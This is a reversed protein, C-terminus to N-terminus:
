WILEEIYDEEPLLELPIRYYIWTGPFYCSLPVVREQTATAVLLAENSAIWMYSNKECCINKLNNLGKGANHSTSKISFNDEMAKKIAAQDNLEPLVRRVTTPIGDGFDCVSVNLMKKRDDYALMSFANGKCNSHDQVNYYM